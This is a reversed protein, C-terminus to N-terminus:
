HTSLFILHGSATQDGLSVTLCASIIYSFPPPISPSACQLHSKQLYHVILSLSLSSSPMQIQFVRTHQRWRHSHHNIFIYITSGLSQAKWILAVYANVSVVFVSCTTVWVWEIMNEGVAGTQWVLVYVYSILPTDRTGSPRRAWGCCMLVLWQM